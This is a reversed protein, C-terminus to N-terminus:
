MTLRLFWRFRRRWVLADPWESLFSHVCCLKDDGDQCGRRGIDRQGAGRDRESSREAAAQAQRQAARQTRRESEKQARRQTRNQRDCAYAQQADGRQAQRDTDIDDLALLLPLRAKQSSRSASVP